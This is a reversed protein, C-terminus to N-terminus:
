IVKESMGCPSEPHNDSTRLEKSVTDAFKKTVAPDMLAKINVKPKQPKANCKRKAKRTSPTCLSTKLLRHDTDFDFWRKVRCDTVYQQVYTEVLVYDLIKRTKGDNSYWTYRHLMRHKFFSSSICLKESRCFSKLREGNDSCDEDQIVTNGDYCCKRRATSTTANFDGLVILKERKQTKM